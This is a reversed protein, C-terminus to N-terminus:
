KRGPAADNGAHIRVGDLGTLVLSGDALAAMGTMRMPQKLSALFLPEGSWDGRLLQGALNGLVFAGNVSTGAAITQESATPLARWTAGRDDSRYVVGRLGFAILARGEGAIGFFSGNYGTDIAAFRGAARDFRYIRGREGVIYLEGGIGRIANLNLYEGNDIRELWPEWTKGGDCTAMLMGFSGVAYGTNADEFWVDLWPLAPGARYNQDLQAAAAEVAPGPATRAYHAKFAELASRGDLQKVWTSGGDASHLVVGEHGVAWGQLPVPFHVALLDSQVPVKAQTWSKGRDDSVVILGRPGVAVLREGALAVAMLARQAPNTRLEAPTDLPDRFTSAALDPSSILLACLSGAFLASRFRARPRPVSSIGPM